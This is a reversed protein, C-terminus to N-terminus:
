RGGPTHGPGAATPPLGRVAGPARWARAPGGGGRAEGRRQGPPASALAPTGPSRPSPRSPLFAAAATPRAPTLGGTGCGSRRAPGAGAPLEPGVAEARPLAPTRREKARVAASGPPGPRHYRRRRLSAPAAGRAAPRRAARPSLPQVGSRHGGALAPTEKEQLEQCLEGSEKLLAPRRPANEYRQLFTLKLDRVLPLLREGLDFKTNNAHIKFSM